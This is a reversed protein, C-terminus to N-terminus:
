INNEKLKLAPSGVVIINDEINNLVTSGAGVIVNEGITVNPIVTAGAGVQTRQGIVVGGTVVSGPSIHVYDSVENDHEVIAGTNIICHTGIKTSSNIVSKAMVVTGNNIVTDKSLTADKHVLVPYKYLPLNISDVIKKRINNDGIAIFFYNNCIYKKINILSDFFIGNDEYYHEFKNDLYGVLKYEDSQNVIDRIVKSHGGVGILILPKM